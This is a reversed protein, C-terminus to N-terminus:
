RNCDSLDKKLLVPFSFSQDGPQNRFVPFAVTFILLSFFIYLFSFDKGLDFEWLENSYNEAFGGFVYM